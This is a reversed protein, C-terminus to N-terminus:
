KSAQIVVNVNKLNLSFTPALTISLVLFSVGGCENTMFKGDHVNIAAWIRAGMM